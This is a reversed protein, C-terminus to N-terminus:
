RRHRVTSATNTRATSPKSRRRARWRPISPRPPATVAIWLHPDAEFALTWKWVSTASPTNSCHGFPECRKTGFGDGGLSTSTARRSADTRRRMTRRTRRWPTLSSAGNAGISLLDVRQEQVGRRQRPQLSRDNVVGGVVAAPRGCYCVEVREYDDYYCDCDKSEDGCAAVMTAFFVGLVAKKIVVRVAM